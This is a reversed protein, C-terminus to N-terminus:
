ATFYAAASDCYKMLDALYSYKEVNRGVYAALSDTVTLVVEDSSNYFTWTVDQRGNAAALEGFVFVTHKDTSSADRENITFSQANGKYDTFTVKAYAVNAQVRADLAIAMGINNKLEFATGLYGNGDTEAAKPAYTGTATAYGWETPNLVINAPSMSNYDFQIQAMTGYNLMDVLITKLANNYATDAAYKPDRLLRLAYDYVSDTKTESIQKGTSDVVYVTVQDQLEKASINAYPIIYYAGEKYADTLTLEIPDSNGRIIYAKSGAPVKSALIAFELTLDEEVTVATGEFKEVAAM